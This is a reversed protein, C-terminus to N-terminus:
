HWFMHESLHWLFGKLFLYMPLNRFIKIRTNPPTQVFGFPFSFIAAFQIKTEERGGKADNKPSTPRV